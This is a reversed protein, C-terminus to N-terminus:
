RQPEASRKSTSIEPTLALNSTTTEWCDLIPATTRKDAYVKLCAKVVHRTTGSISRSQDLENLVSRAFEVADRENEAAKNIAPICSILNRWDLKCGVTSLTLWDHGVGSRAATRSLVNANPDSVHTQVGFASHRTRSEGSYVNVQTDEASTLFFGACVLAIGISVSICRHTMKM